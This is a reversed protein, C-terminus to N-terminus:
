EYIYPDKEKLKKIREALEKKYKREELKEKIWKIPNWM